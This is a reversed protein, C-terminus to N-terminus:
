AQHAARVAGAGAEAGRSVCAALGPTAGDGIRHLGRGPVAESFPDVARRPTAMVPASAPIGDDKGMQFWRASM